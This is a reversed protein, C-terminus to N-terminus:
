QKKGQGKENEKDHKEDIMLHTQNMGIAMCVCVSKNFQPNVYFDKM